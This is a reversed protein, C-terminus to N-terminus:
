LASDFFRGTEYGYRRDNDDFKEPFCIIKRTIYIASTSYGRYLSKCRGIKHVLAIRTWTRCPSTTGRPRVHLKCSRRLMPSRRRSLRLPSLKRKSVEPISLFIRRLFSMRVFCKGFASIEKRDCDVNLMSYLYLIIIFYTNITCM